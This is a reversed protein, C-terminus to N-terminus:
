HTLWGVDKSLAHPSKWHSFAVKRLTIKIQRPPAVEKSLMHITIRALKTDVYNKERERRRLNFASFKL